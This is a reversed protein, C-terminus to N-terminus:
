IFCQECGLSLHGQPETTLADHKYQFIYWLCVFTALEIRAQPVGNKTGPDSEALQARQMEPLHCCIQRM